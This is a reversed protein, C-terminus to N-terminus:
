IWLPVARSGSNFLVPKVPGGGAVAARGPHLIGNM